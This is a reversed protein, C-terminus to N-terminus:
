PAEEVQGAAVHEDAADPVEIQTLGLVHDHEPRADQDHRDHKGMCETPEVASRSRELSVDAIYRATPQSHARRLMTSSTM